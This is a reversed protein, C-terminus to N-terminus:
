ETFTELEEEALFRSYATKLGESFQGKEPFKLSFRCIGLLGPGTNIAMTPAIQHDLMIRADAYRELIRERARKAFDVADGNMLMFWDHKPDIGKAPDLILDVLKEVGKKSGRIKAATTYVGEETCKIIPRIGLINSGMEVAPTIRGGIRLYKLSDMYFELDSDLIKQKLLETVDDFSIGRGLAWGAYVAFAGAGISINRTDFAFTKVGPHEEEIDRMAISMTNFTSSMASSISVTIINEYGESLLKEATDKVEAINLASTKPIEEDFHRYVYVPDEDLLDLDGISRSKYNVMLQLITIGFHEAAKRGVDCGSDCIVATKSANMILEM